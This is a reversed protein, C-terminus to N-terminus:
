STMEEGFVEAQSLILDTASPAKDPPYGHKLLLRKITSRLKARVQEKQAWDTKADRRVIETLEHAIQKMTEDKLVAKASENDALADYFALEAESLGLTEPRDKEEKLSQALRVLEAVIAATDLSRNQYRLLSDSLMESFERGKVINRKGIARIESALLRKLAEMQLNPRKSKTIQEVFADDM